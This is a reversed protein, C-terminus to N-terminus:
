NPAQSTSRGGGDGPIALRRITPVLQRDLTAKSVFADAGAEEAARRWDEPELLTLAVLVTGPLKERLRPLLELGSVDPMALDVLIVDPRLREAEALADRGGVVSGVVRVTEEPQETLFRALVRLFIPNDDVLLLSLTM